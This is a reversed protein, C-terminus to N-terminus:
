KIWSWCKLNVQQYVIQVFDYFLWCILLKSWIQLSLILPGYGYFKITLHWVFLFFCLINIDSIDITLICHFFSFFFVLWGLYRWWGKWRSEKWKNGGWWRFGRRGHCQGWQNKWKFIILCWKCFKKMTRWSRTWPNYM